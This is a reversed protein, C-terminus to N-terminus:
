FVWLSVTSPTDVSVSIWKSENRSTGTTLTAGSPNRVLMAGRWPRGLGHEVQLLTSTLALNEILQGSVIQSTVLGDIQEGQKRIARGTRAELADVEPGKFGTSELEAM